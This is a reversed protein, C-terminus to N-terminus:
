QQIEVGLQAARRPSRAPSRPRRAGAGRRRATPRSPRSASAPRRRRASTTSSRASSTSSRSRRRASRGRRGDAVAPEVGDYVVQPGLPHRQHRLATLRRQVGRGDGRRRPRLAVGEVARLVREDDAGDRRAGHLRRVRDAAVGAAVTSSARTTTSSVRRPRSSARTPCSRASSPRATATSTPRRGRAPEPLTGWLVGETLNYLNGPQELVRATRRARPRVPRREGPDEAASSGADLIVDYEALSPTGAVIGEMQEYYPNGEIWHDKREALIRRSRKASSPWCGPTTTTSRSAALRRLGRRARQFERRHLRRAARHPRDPLGQGGDLDADALRARRRRRLPRPTAEDSDDGGCGALSLLVLRCYPHALARM